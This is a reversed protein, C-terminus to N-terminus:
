GLSYNRGGLHQHQLLIIQTVALTAVMVVLIVAKVPMVAKVLIAALMVLTAAKALTVLM